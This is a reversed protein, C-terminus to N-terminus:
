LLIVPVDLRSQRGKLSLLLSCATYDSVPMMTINISLEAWKFTQKLSEFILLKMVFDKKGWETALFRYSVEALCFIRCDM